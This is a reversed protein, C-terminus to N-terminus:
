IKPQFSFISPTEVFMLDSKVILYRSTHSLWM